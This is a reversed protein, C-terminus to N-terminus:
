IIVSEDKAKIPKCVESSSSTEKHCVSLYNNKCGMESPFSLLTPEMEYVLLCLGRSPISTLLNSELDQVGSSAIKRRSSVTERLEPLWFNSIFADDQGHEKPFRYLSDKKAEERQQYPSATRPTRPKYISGQLM